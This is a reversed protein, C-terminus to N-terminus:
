KKQNFRMIIWVLVIVGIFKSVLPFACIFEVLCGGIFCLLFSYAFWGVVIEGWEFVEGAIYLAKTYYKKIM